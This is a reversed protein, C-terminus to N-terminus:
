AIERGQIWITGFGDCLIEVGELQRDYGSDDKKRCKAKIELGGPHKPDDWDHSKIEYKFRPSGSPRSFTIEPYGVREIDKRDPPWCGHEEYYTMCCIWINKLVIKAESIKATKSSRMYRNVAIASLIGIIVVIIMM